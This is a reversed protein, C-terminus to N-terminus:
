MKIRKITYNFKERTYLRLREIGHKYAFNQHKKITLDDILDYWYACAKSTHKRLIRGISQLNIIKSKIPHANVARHLNDISVGTSMTGFSAVVIDGSVNELLAKIKNRDDTKVDGAIYHCKRGTDKISNNIISFLEKGHSLEKFLVITNKDPAAIALKAIFANRKPHSTLWKIEQQYNFKAKRMQKAIDKSYELVIPVPIIPTIKGEKIMKSTTTPKFISGFLGMLQLLHSKADKLSGTLGAKYKCNTMSKNIDSLSKGEALHVEDNLLMGFQDIWEQPQKIASQYTSVYVRATADDKETGSKICLIDEDDFLQYEILDEKMQYVLM